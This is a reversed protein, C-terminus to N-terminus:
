FFVKEHAGNSINVSKQACNGRNGEFCFKIKHRGASVKHKLVLKGEKVFRNDVFLHGWRSSKM